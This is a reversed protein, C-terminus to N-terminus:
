LLEAAFPEFRGLSHSFEVYIVALAQCSWDHTM